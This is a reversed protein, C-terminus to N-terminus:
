FKNQSFIFFYVMNKRSSEVDDPRSEVKLVMTGFLPYASSNKEQNLLINQGM